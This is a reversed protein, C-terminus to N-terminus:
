SIIPFHNSLDNLRRKEDRKISTELKSRLIVFRHELYGNKHLVGCFKTLIRVQSEMGVADTEFDLAMENASSIHQCMLELLTQTSADTTSLHQISIFLM